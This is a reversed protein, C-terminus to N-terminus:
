VSMYNNVSYKVHKLKECLLNKKVLVMVELTGCKSERVCNNCLTAYDPPLIAACCIHLYTQMANIKILKEM